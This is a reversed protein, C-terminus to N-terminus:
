CGHVHRGCGLKDVSKGASVSGPLLLANGAACLQWSINKIERKFLESRNRTLNYYVKGLTEEFLVLYENRSPMHDEVAM